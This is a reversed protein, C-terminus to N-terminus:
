WGPKGELRNVEQLSGLRFRLPLHSTKEIQLEKRCFFGLNGIYYGDGYSEYQVNVPIRFVYGRNKGEFEMESYTNFGLHLLSVERNLPLQRTLGRNKLLVAVGTQAWVSGTLISFCVVLFTKKRQVRLGEKKTLNVAQNKHNASKKEFVSPFGL